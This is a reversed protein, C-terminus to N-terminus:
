GVRVLGLLAFRFRGADVAIAHWALCLWDVYGRTQTHACWVYRVTSTPQTCVVCLCLCRIARRAQPNSMGGAEAPGVCM